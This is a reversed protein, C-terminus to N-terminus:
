LRNGATKWEAGPRIKKPFRESDNAMDPEDDAM